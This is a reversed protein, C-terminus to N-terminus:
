QGITSTFCGKWPLVCIELICVCCFAIFYFTDKKAKNYSFAKFSAITTRAFRLPTMGTVSLDLHWNLTWAENKKTEELLVSIDGAQHLDTDRAVRTAESLVIVHWSLHTAKICSLWLQLGSASIGQLNTLVCDKTKQSQWPRPFRVSNQQPLPHFRDDGKRGCSRHEPFLSRTHGNSRKEMRPLTRYALLYLTKEAFLWPRLHGRHIYPRNALLILKLLLSGPPLWCSM